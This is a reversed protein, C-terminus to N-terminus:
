HRYDLILEQGSEINQYAAFGAPVELMYRAKTESVYIPCPDKRCPELNELTETVLGQESLFLVDLALLTNKMWVGQRTTEPYIFLMGQNKNLTTRHMLGYERQTETYAIEM